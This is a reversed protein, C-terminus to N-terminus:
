LASCLELKLLVQSSHATPDGTKFGHTLWNFFTLWKPPDSFIWSSWESYESHIASPIAGDTSDLFKLIDTKVQTDTYFQGSDAVFRQSFDSRGSTQLGLESFCLRNCLQTFFGPLSVFTLVTKDRADFPVVDSVFL